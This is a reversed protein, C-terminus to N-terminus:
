TFNKKNSQKNFDSLSSTLCPTLYNMFSGKFFSKGLAQRTDVPPRARDSRSSPLCVPHFNMFLRQLSTKGINTMYTSTIHSQGIPLFTFMNPPLGHFLRQLSKIAVTQRTLVSLRGRDTSVNTFIKKKSIVGTKM